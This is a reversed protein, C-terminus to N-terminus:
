KGARFYTGIKVDDAIDYLNEIRKGNTIIMDIGNDMVIEAAHLKTKM